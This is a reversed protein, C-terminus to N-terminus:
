FQVGLGFVADTSGGAMAAGLQIYTFPILKLNIGAEIRTGSATGKLTSITSDPEVSTSDFGVGAYPTIVPLNNFSIMANVGTTSAKFKNDKAAVDINTMIAQVSVSPLGPISPKLIGYRLGFGMLSSDLISTYRAIIDINAPLGIEVQAMPLLISSVDASKVIANDDSVKKSPVHIGIDFGPLGLSKGNHYSGGGLLAGMDTALNDLAKQAVSGGGSVLAKFNDFPDAAYVPSTVVAIFMVYILVKKMIIRRNKNVDKFFIKLSNDVPKDGTSVIL